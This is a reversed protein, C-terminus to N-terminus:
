LNLGTIQNAIQRAQEFDANSIKGAAMQQQIYQQGVVRPDFNQPVQQMMSNVANQFNQFGGFQQLLPNNPNPNFPAM